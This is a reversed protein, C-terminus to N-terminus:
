CDATMKMLYDDIVQNGQPQSHTRLNKQAKQKHSPCVHPCVCVCVYAGACVHVFVYACVCVTHIFASVCSM